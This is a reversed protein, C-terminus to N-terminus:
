VGRAPFRPLEFEDLQSPLGRSGVAQVQGPYHWRLSPDDSHRMTAADDRSETDDPQEGKRRKGSAGDAGLRREM